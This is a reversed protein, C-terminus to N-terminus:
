NIQALLQGPIVLATSQPKALDTGNAARILPLDVAILDTAQRSHQLICTLRTERVGLGNVFELESGLNTDEIFGSDM